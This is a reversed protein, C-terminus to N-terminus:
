VWAQVSVPKNIWFIDASDTLTEDPGFDTMPQAEVRSSQKRKLMSPSATSYLSHIQCLSPGCLSQPYVLLIPSCEPLMWTQATATFIFCRALHWQFHLQEFLLCQAKTQFCLSACSYFYLVILCRTYWNHSKVAVRQKRSGRSSNGSCLSPSHAEFQAPATNCFHGGHHVVYCSMLSLVCTYECQFLELWKGDSLVECWRRWISCRPVLPSLQAVWQTSTVQQGHGRKHTHTHPKKCLFFPFGCFFCFCLLFTYLSDRCLFVLLFSVTFPSLACM